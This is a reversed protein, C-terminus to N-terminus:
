HVSQIEIRASARPQLPKPELTEFTATVSYAGDELPHGGERVLPVSFPM